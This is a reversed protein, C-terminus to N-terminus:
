ALQLRQAVDELLEGREGHKVAKKQRLLKQRLPSKIPLGEAPDGLLEVLKQEILNAIMERLEEKTMRGVTTAM